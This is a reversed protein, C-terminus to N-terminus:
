KRFFTVLKERNKEDAVWALTEKVALLGILKLLFKFATM